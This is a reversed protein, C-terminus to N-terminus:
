SLQSVVMFSMTLGGSNEIKIDYPVVTFAAEETTMTVLGYTKYIYELFARVTASVDKIKLQLERDGAAYGADYITVGGDLTATKSVRRSGAVNKATGIGDLDGGPFYRHGNLDFVQTSIGIGNM